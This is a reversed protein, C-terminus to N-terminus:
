LDTNRNIWSRYYSIRSYGSPYGSECGRSPIFSVVGVQTNGVVLPGGSDGNCPGTPTYGYTCLTSSKVVDPGYVNLCLVNQMIFLHTEQLAASLDTSSNSTTGWGSLFAVYGSYDGSDAVALRVIQIYNNTVIHEPTQILSIDNSHRDPRMYDEHIIINTSTVRLQSHEEINVYHAGLRIEVYSARSFFRIVM